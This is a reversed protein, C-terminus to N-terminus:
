GGVLFARIHVRSSSVWLGYATRRLVEGQVWAEWLAQDDTCEGNEQVSSSAAELPPELKRLAVDLVSKTMLSRELLTRDNTFTEAIHCLLVAQALWV